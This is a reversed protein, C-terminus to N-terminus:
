ILFCYMYILKNDFYQLCIAYDVKQTDFDAIFDM